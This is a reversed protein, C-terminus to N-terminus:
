EHCDFVYMDVLMDDTGVLLISGIFRDEGHLFSAGVGITVLYFYM